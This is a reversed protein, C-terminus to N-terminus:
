LRTRWYDPRRRHHAVAVILLEEPDLVYIVNYRFTRLRWAHVRESLKRGILPSKRLASVADLLEQEFRDGLGERQMDFYRIAEEAEAEAPALFRVPTM